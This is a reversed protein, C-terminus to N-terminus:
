LSLSLPILSIWVCVTSKCIHKSNEEKWMLVWLTQPFHRDAKVHMVSKALINVSVVPHTRCLWCPSVVGHFQWHWRAIISFWEVNWMHYETWLDDFLLVGGWRRGREREHVSTIFVGDVINIMIHGVGPALGLCLFQHQLGVAILYKYLCTVDWVFVRYYCVCVLECVKIQHVNQFIRPNTAKLPVRMLLRIWIPFGKM